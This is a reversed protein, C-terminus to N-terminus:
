RDLTEHKSKVRKAEEESLFITKGFYPISNLIHIASKFKWKRIDYIAYPCEECKGYEDCGHYDPRCSCVCAATYFTDGVSCPLVVLKGQEELDKFKAWEMLKAATKMNYEIEKVSTKEKYFKVLYAIEEPTLDLDEYRALRDIYNEHNNVVAAHEGMWQTLREM